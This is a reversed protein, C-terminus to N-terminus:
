AFDDSKSILSKGLQGCAGDISKGRRFRLSVKLGAKELLFAFHNGEKESPPFFDITSVPNWPILNINVNLGKSFEILKKASEDDTNYGSLLVAELTVRKGSKETYNKLAKKLEPLPNGKAIPMLSERLKQDAVTLSCALRVFPGNETLDKIGEILGCTSITIRRPSFNRGKKDTLVSIAKRVECLNQLPEGMGMFVLNSLCGKTDEKDKEGEKENALAEKELYLFQEVIEGSSLNRGLGLKGTMCFTCGMACGAQCSVCATKRGEKDTLLVAEIAKEDNLTLQLKITGDKDKIKKTVHSSRLLAKEELFKRTEKSIDSMEEFSEAGKVIWNYIQKARFSPSLNLHQAIEEPFLGTLAIKEETM